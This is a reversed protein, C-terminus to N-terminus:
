LIRMYATYGVNKMRTESGARPTGNAGDTILGQTSTVVQFSAGTGVWNQAGGTAVSGSLSHYHSQVQDDQKTGSSTSPRVIRGETNLLDITQGNMPSASLSIQATALVLPASGSVSESTLIGNNYGGGGTLGATLKAYRFRASTTPPEVIGTLNTPLYIVEGVAKSRWTIDSTGVEIVWVRVVSSAFGEFLLLDDATTTYNVSTSGNVILSASATLQFASVSRCIRLQREAMTVATVTTTGTLDILPGTATSLVLTSATAIDNGKAAFADWAEIATDVGTGGAVVPRPTNLDAAIDELPTNHQTALITDGPTAEYVVPLTYVGSLNRSM